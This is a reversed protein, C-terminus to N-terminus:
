SNAIWKVFCQIYRSVLYIDHILFCVGKIGDGLHM